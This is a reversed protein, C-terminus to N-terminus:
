LPRLYSGLIVAGGQDEKAVSIPDGSVVLYSQLEGQGNIFMVARKYCGVPDGRSCPREFLRAAEARDAPASPAEGKPSGAMAQALDNCASRDGFDCANRRSRPGQPRGLGRSLPGGDERMGRRRRARVGARGAEAISDGFVAEYEETCGALIGLVPLLFFRVNVM